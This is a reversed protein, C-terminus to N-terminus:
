LLVAGIVLWILVFVFWVQVRDLTKGGGNSKGKGIAGVDPTKSNGEKAAGIVGADEAATGVDSGTRNVVGQVNAHFGGLVNGRPFFECAVLWGQVGNQGGCNTRGCGLQTSNKWVLQTFKAARVLSLIQPELKVTINSFDVFLEETSLTWSEISSTANAHSSALNEGFPGNQEDMMLM